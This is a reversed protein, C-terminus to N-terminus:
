EILKVRDFIYGSRTMGSQIAALSQDALWGSNSDVYDPLTAVMFRVDYRRRTNASRGSSRVHWALNRLMRWDRYEDLLANAASM